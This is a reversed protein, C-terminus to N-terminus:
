RSRGAPRRRSRDVHTAHVATFRERSCAAIPSCASRRAATPTTASSTRPRSSPCTPTSCAAAPRRGLRRRRRDLASRRRAGLPDRRRGAADAGALSTLQKSANRGVGRRHRRQVPAANGRGTAARRRSRDRCRPLVHRAVDDAPRRRRRRGGAGRRDREPRRVADTPRTISTTSSASAPSAPWCWRPSRRGRWGITRTPTSRRRWGTCRTAGRGSRGRGPRRAAACPAISPTATPTPSGPCRSAASAPPAPQRPSAPRRGGRHSRRRGRDARRAGAREGGLWALECHFVAQQCTLERRARRLRHDAGRLRRSPLARVAGVHHPQAHRAGPRPVARRRPPRARAPVHGRHPRAQGRRAREGDRDLYRVRINVHRM